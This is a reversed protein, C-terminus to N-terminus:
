WVVPLGMLSSATGDLWLLWSRTALSVGTLGTAATHALTIPRGWSGPNAATATRKSIQVVAPTTGNLWYAMPVGNPDLMVRSRTTQPVVSPVFTEEATWTGSQRSRFAFTQATKGAAIPSINSWLVYAQGAPDVTIAPDGVFKGSASLPQSNSWNGNLRQVFSIQNGVAVPEVLAMQPEPGGAIAFSVAGGVAVEPAQWAGNSWRVVQVMRGGVNGSLWAAWIGGQGDPVIVPATAPPTAGPVLVPTSWTAGNSAYHYPVGATISIVHNQGSAGSGVALEDGGTGLDAATGIGGDTMGAVHIRNDAGKWAVLPGSPGDASTLQSVAGPDLTSPALPTWTQALTRATGTQLRLQAPGVLTAPATSTWGMAALAAPSTETQAAGLVDQGTALQTHFDFALPIGTWHIQTIGPTGTVPTITAPLPLDGAGDGGATVTDAIETALQNLVAPTYTVIDAVVQHPPVVTGLTAADTVAPDLARVRAIATTLPSIQVDTGSISDWDSGTYRLITRLTVGARRSGSIFRAAELWYYGPAVTVANAAFPLTFTGNVTSSQTALLTKGTAPEVLSVTGNTQIDGITAATRMGGLTWRVTGHVASPRAGTLPASMQCAGLGVAVVTLVLRMLPHRLQVNTIRGILHPKATVL